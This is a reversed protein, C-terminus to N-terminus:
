RSITEVSCPIGLREAAEFVRERQVGAIGCRSLDPTVLRGHELLFINCHTGSIVHAETDLMLGEPIESDNWESRALVNELRNLHKVGALRPQISLRVQCWRVRVGSREYQALPPPLPFSAVIRTATSQLPVAYGRGGLGRTVIVKLVCDSESHLVEHLDRLVLEESPCAIGLVACDSALKRYHRTWFPITGQVARMTRFIGDGYALGRDLVRLHDSRKGDVLIM